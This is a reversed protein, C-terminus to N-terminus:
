NRYVAVVNRDRPPSKQRSIAGRRDVVFFKYGLSDLFEWAGYPSLGLPVSGEPYIEFIVIPHKTGLVAEAGRLVLEEAGEVDMKIVDVRSDPLKGLVNDLSETAVEEATETFSPDKGLSDCGVNPHHYLHAKGRTKTLALRYALVNTLGNLAINNRLVRFVRSAPEFAMVRGQPGVMKSAALTYIGYCAGADVFTMGPLLIQQLYNLEPEYYERFAFILKEVGRWNAPLFMRLGWRPLRAIAARRLLCRACWSLLRSMTLVPARHMAEQATLYEWKSELNKRLSTM